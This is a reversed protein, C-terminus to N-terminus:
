KRKYPITPKNKLLVLVTLMTLTVFVLGISTQILWHSQWWPTGSAHAQKELISHTLEQSFYTHPHPNNFLDAM